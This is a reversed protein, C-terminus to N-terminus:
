GERIRWLRLANNENTAYIVTRRYKKNKNIKKKKGARFLVDLVNANRSCHVNINIRFTNSLGLLFDTLIFRKAVDAIYKCLM